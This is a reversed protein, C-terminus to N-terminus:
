DIIRQLNMKLIERHFPSIGSNDNNRSKKVSTSAVKTSTGGGSPVKSRPGSKRKVGQKAVVPSGEGDTCDHVHSSLGAAAEFSPSLTSETAADFSPSLSAITATDFSSPLDVFSSTAPTIADSKKKTSSPYVFHRPVPSGFSDERGGFIPRSAGSNPHKDGDRSAGATPVAAARPVVLKKSKEKPATAKHGPTSATSPGGSSNKSHGGKRDAWSKSKDAGTTKPGSAASAGNPGRITSTSGGAEGKLVVSGKSGETAADSAIKPAIIISYAEGGKRIVSSKPREFANTAMKNSGVLISGVSKNSFAVASTPKSSKTPAKKRPAWLSQTPRSPGPHQVNDIAKSVESAVRYVALDVARAISDRGVSGDRNTKLSSNFLETMIEELCGDAPNRDWRERLAQSAKDVARKHSMQKYAGTLADVELFRGPPDQKKTAKVVSKAVM